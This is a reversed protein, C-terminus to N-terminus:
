ATAQELSSIRTEHDVLQAGTTELITDVKAEVDDIKQTLKAEVDDIKQGLKELGTKLNSIDERLDNTQLSLQQSVTNAIFQKLDQLLEENTM